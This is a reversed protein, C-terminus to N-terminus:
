NRFPRQLAAREPFGPSHEYIGHLAAIFASTEAANLQELTTTMHQGTPAGGAGESHEHTIGCTRAAMGGQFDPNDAGITAQPQRRVTQAL